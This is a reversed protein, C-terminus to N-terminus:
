FAITGIQFEVMYAEIPLTEITSDVPMQVTTKKARKARAAAAAEQARAVERAAWITEINAFTENANIPKTKQRKATLTEITRDRKALQLDKQTSNWEINDLTKATKSLLTRVSRSVTEQAM